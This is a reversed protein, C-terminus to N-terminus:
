GVPKGTQEEILPETQEGVRRDQEDCENADAHHQGPAPPPAMGGFQQEDHQGIQQEDGIDRHPPTDGTRRRPEEHWDQWPHGERCGRRPCHHSATGSRARASAASAKVIKAEADSTSMSSPRRANLTRSACARQSSHSFPLTSRGRPRGIQHRSRSVGSKRPIAIQHAVAAAPQSATRLISRMLANASRARNTVATAATQAPAQAVESDTVQANSRTLPREGAGPWNCTSRRRELSGSSRANSRDCARRNSRSRTGPSIRMSGANEDTGPPAPRFSRGSNATPLTGAPSYRSRNEMRDCSPQIM